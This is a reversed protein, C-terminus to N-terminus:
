GEKRKGQIMQVTKLIMVARRGFVFQRFEPRLEMLHVCMAQLIMLDAGMFSIPKRDSFHFRAGTNTAIEVKTLSDVRGESLKWRRCLWHSIMGDEIRISVLLTPLVFFPTILGIGLAVALLDVVNVPRRGEHQIVFGMGVAGVAGIMLGAILVSRLQKWTNGFDRRMLGKAKASEPM